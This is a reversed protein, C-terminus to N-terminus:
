CYEKDDGEVRALISIMNHTEIGEENIAPKDHKQNNVPNM